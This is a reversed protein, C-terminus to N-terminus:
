PKQRRDALRTELTQWHAQPKPRHDMGWMQRNLVMGLRPDAKRTLRARNPLLLTKARNLMSGKGIPRMVGIDNGEANHLFASLESLWAGSPVLGPTLILWWDSRCLAGAVSILAPWEGQAVVMMCGAADGLRSMPESFNPSVLVADRILGDAVGAVCASLTDLLAPEEDILPLILSIM